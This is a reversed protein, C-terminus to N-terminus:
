SVRPQLKISFKYQVKKSLNVPAIQNNVVQKGIEFKFKCINGQKWRQQAMDFWVCLSQFLWGFELEM